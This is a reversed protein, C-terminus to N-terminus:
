NSSEGASERGSLTTTSDGEMPLDDSGSQQANGKKIRQKKPKPEKSPNLVNMTKELGDKIWIELGDVAEQVCVDVLPRDSGSFRQLVYDSAAMRGPPRGVGVRLRSIKDTGLHRITDALGKQGGASGCARVRMRGVDLNMDDVVVLVDDHDIKYFDVCQRVSKGSTNMYTQPALLVVKEGIVSQDTVLGDFRSKATPFFHRDAFANLIEFGINHRTKDYRPGPNGLGVILKM